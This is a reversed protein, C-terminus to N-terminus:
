CEMFGTCLSRLNHLSHIYPVHICQASYSSFFVFPGFCPPICLLKNVHIRLLMHLTSPELYRPHIFSFRNPTIDNPQSVSEVPSFNLIPTPPHFSRVGRRVHGVFLWGAEGEM